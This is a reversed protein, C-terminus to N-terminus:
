LTRRCVSHVQVPIAVGPEDVLEHDDVGRDDVLDDVFWMTFRYASNYERKITSFTSDRNFRREGPSHSFGM